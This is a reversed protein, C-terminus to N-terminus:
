QIDDQWLLLHLLELSLLVVALWTKQKLSGLDMKSKQIACLVRIFGACSQVFVQAWSKQMHKRETFTEVGVWCFIHHLHRRPFVYINEHGTGMSALIARGKFDALDAVLTNFIHELSSGFGSMLLLVTVRTLTSQAEPDSLEWLEDETISVSQDKQSLFEKRQSLM